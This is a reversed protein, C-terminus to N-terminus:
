WQKEKEQKRRQDKQRSFRRKSVKPERYFNEEEQNSDYVCLHLSYLRVLMLWLSTSLFYIWDDARLLKGRWEDLATCFFLLTKNWGESYPEAMIWGSLFFSTKYSIIVQPLASLLFCVPPQVQWRNSRMSRTENKELILARSKWHRSLVLIQPFTM